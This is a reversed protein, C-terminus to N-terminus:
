RRPSGAAAGESAADTFSRVLRAIEAKREPELGQLAEDAVLGAVTNFPDKLMQQFLKSTEGM